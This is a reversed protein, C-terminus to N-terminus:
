GGPVLTNESLGPAPPAAVTAQYRRWREAFLQQIRAGHGDFHGKCEDPTFAIDAGAAREQRRYEPIKRRAEWRDLRAALGDLAREALRRSRRPRDPRRRTLLPDLPRAGANPLYHRTWANAALLQQYVSLGILPRMQALERAAFLNRSRLSLANTSLLYNPCLEERQTRLGFRVVAVALRRCFWVRGPETILMLDADDAAEVNNMALSGTVGVMRVFPISATLHLLPRLKRWKAAAVRARHARLAPLHDRGAWYYVGGQEGLSARLRPDHALAAAVEGLSAPTEVLFRQIERATLPYDFIDSYLLTRQIAEALALCMTPITHGNTAPDGSM